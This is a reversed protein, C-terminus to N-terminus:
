YNFKATLGIKYGSEFVSGLGVNITSLRKHEDFQNEFYQVSRSGNKSKVLNFIGADKLVNDLPYETLLLNYVINSVEIDLPNHEISLSYSVGAAPHADSSSRYYSMDTKNVIYNSILLASKNYHTIVSDTGSYKKVILSDLVKEKYFFNQIEVITNIVTSKLMTMELKGDKNYTLFLTSPKSGLDQFMSDPQFQVQKPHNQNVNEEVVVPVPTNESKKGKCCVFFSSIVLAFYISKM